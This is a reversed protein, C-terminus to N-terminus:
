SSSGGQRLMWRLSPWSREKLEGMQKRGRRERGRSRPVTIRFHVGRQMSSRRGCLRHSLASLLTRSRPRTSLLVSSTPTASSTTTANKVLVITVRPLPTPKM